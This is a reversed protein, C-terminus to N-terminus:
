GLTLRRLGAVVIMACLGAAADDAVVGYGGPLRELRRIPYPKLIDFFRFLLFAALWHQWHMPDIAALAVWQGVVEDVVVEGPDNKRSQREVVGAAWCGPLFLVAAALALGWAPLGAWLLVYAAALAALSGFSGPAIPAYGVGAWTALVVALRTLPTPANV